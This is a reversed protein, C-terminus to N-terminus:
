LFRVWASRTRAKFRAFWLCPLYLIALAVVTALYVGPLSYGYARPSETPFRGGWGLWEGPQGSIQAVILAMTHLV